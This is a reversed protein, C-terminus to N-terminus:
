KNIRNEIKSDLLKKTKSQDDPISNRKIYYDVYTVEYFLSKVFTRIEKIQANSIEFDEKRSNLVLEKVVNEIRGNTPDGLINM